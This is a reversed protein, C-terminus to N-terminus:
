AIMRRLVVNMMIDDWKGKEKANRRLREVMEKSVVRLEKETIEKFVDHKKIFKMLKKVASGAERQCQSAERGIQRKGWREVEAVYEAHKEM